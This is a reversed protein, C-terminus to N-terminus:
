VLRGAEFKIQLSQLNSDISDLWQHAAERPLIQFLPTQIKNMVHHGFTRTRKVVDVWAPSGWESRMKELRDMFKAEDAAFYGLDAIHLADGFLSSKPSIDVTTDIIGNSILKLEADSLEPLKHMVLAASRQEKTEFEPSSDKYYDADHWAAAIILLSKNDIIEPNDSNIAIKGVAAMVDQAHEWNHYPLVEPYYPKARETFENLFESTIYSM